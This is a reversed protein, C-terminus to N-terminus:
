GNATQDEKEREEQELQRHILRMEAASLLSSASQMYRRASDAGKDQALARVMAVHLGADRPMISLADRLLSYVALYNNERSLLSAYDLVARRFASKYYQSRAILWLETDFGPLLGGRYLRLAAALCEPDGSGAARYYRRLLTDFFDCDIQFQLEPNLVYTGHRATILPKVSIPALHRRLRFAVNKVMSYPDDLLQDPWLAEALEYVPAVRGRTCLLYLLLLCSQRSSIEGGSLKGKATQLTFEGFMTVRVEDPGAPLPPATLAEDAAYKSVLDAAASLGDEPRGSLLVMLDRRLVAGDCPIRSCFLLRGGLVPGNPLPLPVSGWVPLTLSQYAARFEEGTGFLQWAYEPLPGHVLLTRAAPSAYLLRGTDPASLCYCLQDSYTTPTTMPPEKAPGRGAAGPRLEAQACAPFVRSPDYM